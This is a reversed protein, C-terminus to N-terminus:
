WLSLYYNKINAKQGIDIALAEKKKCKKKEMRNPQTLLEFQFWFSLASYIVITFCSCSSPALKKNKQNFHLTNM